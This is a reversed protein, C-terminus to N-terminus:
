NSVEQQFLELHPQNDVHWRRLSAEDTDFLLKQLTNAETHGDAFLIHSMGRHRLSAGSLDKATVGLNIPPLRRSLFDLGEGIPPQPGRDYSGYARSFSDGIMIMDSPCHVESERTPEVGILPGKLHKGSLGYLYQSDYTASGGNYGYSGVSPFIFSTSHNDPCSQTDAVLGRYSPCRFIGTNWNQPAPNIDNYWKVGTPKSDTTWSRSFLPYSGNDQTYSLFAIGIQRLNNKCYTAQAKSKASSLAPLLLSALIAIIAIVVLLEILTFGNNLKNKM